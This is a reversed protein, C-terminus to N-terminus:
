HLSSVPSSTDFGVEALEERCSLGIDGWVVVEGNTRLDRCEKEALFTLSRVVNRSGETEASLPDPLV